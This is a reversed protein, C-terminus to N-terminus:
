GLQHSVEISEVRASSVSFTLHMSDRWTGPLPEGGRHFCDTVNAFICSGLPGTNLVPDVKKLQEPLVADSKYRLCKKEPLYEHAAVSDELNFMRYACSADHANLHVIVTLITRHPQRAMGPRDCHWYNNYTESQRKEEDLPKRRSCIVSKLVYETGLLNVLEDHLYLRIFLQIEPIRYMPKDLLVFYKGPEGPNSGVEPNEIRIRRWSKLKVDRNYPSSILKQFYISISELLKIGKRPPTLKLYGMKHYKQGDERRQLTISPEKFNRVLKHRSVFWYVKIARVFLFPQGARIGYHWWLNAMRVPYRALRYPLATLRVLKALVLRKTM